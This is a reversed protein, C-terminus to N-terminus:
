IRSRAIFLPNSTVQEGNLFYSDDSYLRHAVLMSHEGSRVSIHSLRVDALMGVTDTMSRSTEIVSLMRLLTGPRLM